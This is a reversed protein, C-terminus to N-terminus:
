RHSRATRFVAENEVKTECDINKQVPTDAISLSHAKADYYYIHDSLREENSVQTANVEKVIEALSKAEGDAAPVAILEHVSSPLIFYDTEGAFKSFTEEDYFITSAGNLAMKNSIIYMPIDAMDEAEFMDGMMESLVEAMSKIQMPMKELSNKVAFDYLTDQNIEWLRLFENRVLVSAADNVTDTPLQVIYILALDEKIIHPVTMLLEKNAEANVVTLIVKDKVYEFDTLQKGINEFARPCERQAVDALSRLVSLLDDNERYFEYFDDLYITPSVPNGPLHVMLAQLVTGNNKGVSRINIDANQYDGSLEEKIHEAVYQQFEEYNLM